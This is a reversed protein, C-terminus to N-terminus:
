RHRLWRRAGFVVLLKVSVIAAVAVVLAGGGLGLSTLAGSLGAHMLLAGGGLHAVVAVFAVAIGAMPLLRHLGPRATPSRDTDAEHTM